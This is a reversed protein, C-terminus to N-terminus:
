WPPSNVSQQAHHDLVERVKQVIANSTFPKEIFHLNKDDMGHQALVDISYGSIFLCKLGPNIGQVREALERGNIDPMVVDTILMDLENRNNEALTIAESPSPTALVRFGQRKLMTAVMNLIAAEDEVLLITETNARDSAVQDESHQKEASGYHRPLYVTFTTGKGFQSNVEIFGNNQKLIGYVTALGLGTGEGIGKTTFFPEFIYKVTHSDMGCGDDRVKLQVYKGPVLYPHIDCFAADLSINHTAITISGTGEIADRANVCLNALVQDIQAPDVKVSWLDDYPLWELKIDEGILRRLMNLMSSITGNLNLVKPTIAQKRAFALLQRTLDASHEAAKMIQQLSKQSPHDAEIEDITLETFGLIVSLMNNFDHAVGGALRGVSEMKQAQQLQTELRNKEEQGLKRESIDRAVSLIMKRGSQEIINASIEVPFQEGNKKIHVAEFILHGADLLMKRHERTAHHKGNEALTIDSPSLNLFEKHSYGYRLCAIKNVEVFPAFGQERYPHIFIADNFSNYFVELRAAYTKREVIESELERNAVVLEATRKKIQFRFLLTIISLTLLLVATGSLLYTIFKPLRTKQTIMLNRSIAQYYPSDPKNKFDALHKDLTVLVQQNAGKTAAFRMEIPNFLVGSPRTRFREKNSNGYMRNVVGVQVYDADLMEFITEYEDTELFRCSINFKKVLEKIAYFHIDGAKVAVKRNKLDLVSAIALDPATYLEAWNALVTQYSFDFLKERQESYAIAPLLDITGKELGTYLESWHDQIFELQWAEIAAIEELIDIFLGQATNTQQDFAIFPPNNYVGVKLVTKGSAPASHILLITLALIPLHVSRLLLGKLHQM